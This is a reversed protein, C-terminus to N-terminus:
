WVESIEGIELLKVASVEVCDPMGGLGEWNNGIIGLLIM